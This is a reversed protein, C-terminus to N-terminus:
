APEAGDSVSRIVQAPVGAAISGTAISSRVVANAGIVCNDGVSVGRLITAKAGIWVNRGVTIPMTVRGQLRYPVDADTFRHDQDRITVHEAILADEGIEIREAATIVTCVGVYSNAGISLDGEVVINVGRDLHVNDGIEVHGGDVISFYVNAGLRVGLGVRLGPFMM